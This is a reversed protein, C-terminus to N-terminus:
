TQPHSYNPSVEPKSGERFESKRTKALFSFGDAHRFHTSFTLRCSYTLATVVDPVPQPPPPDNFPKFPQLTFPIM